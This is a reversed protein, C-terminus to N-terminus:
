VELLLGIQRTAERARADRVHVHLAGGVAELEDDVGRPGADDDPALPRLNVLELGVDGGPRAAFDEDRNLFHVLRLEVRLKLGLLDRLLQLLADGEAAGHALGDLLGEPEAPLADLDLDRAAQVARLDGAGLPVQLAPEGQVRQAGVDVVAEGLRVRGVAHDADLAPNVAALNEVRLRRHRAARLGVGDVLGPALAAVSTAGPAVTVFAVPARAAVTAPAARAAATTAAAAVTSLNKVASQSKPHM